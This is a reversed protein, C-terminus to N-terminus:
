APYTVTQFFLISNLTTGVLFSTLLLPDKTVTLTTFIRLANGGTSLFASIPSWGGSTHARFNSSVQPLLSFTTLTTAVTQAVKSTWMPASTILWGFLAGVAALAMGVVAIPVGGSGELRIILGSIFLSQATLAGYESFSTPPFRMRLPYVLAAASGLFFLCWTALSLGGTEGTSLIRYIIPSYLILSGATMLYGVGTSVLMALSPGGDKQSVLDTPPATTSVSGYGRSCGRLGPRRPIIARDRHRISPLDALAAPLLLLLCLTRVMLFTTSANLNTRLASLQECTLRPRNLQAPNNPPIRIRWVNHRYCRM